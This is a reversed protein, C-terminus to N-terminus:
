GDARPSTCTNEWLGPFLLEMTMAISIPNRYGISRV